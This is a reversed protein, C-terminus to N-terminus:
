NLPIKVGSFELYDVKSVDLIELFSYTVVMKSGITSKGSSSIKDFTTGDKLHVKIEQSYPEKEDSSPPNKDYLNIAHGKLVLNISIPSLTLEKLAVESGNFPVKKNIRYKVSGDKYDLEFPIKWNGSVVRIYTDDGTTSKPNYFSFDTFDLTVKKGILKERADLSLVMPIKNDNPDPDKLQDTYWGKCTTFPIIMDTREFTYYVTPDPKITDPFIVDYLIHVSHRDGIAEKVDITLGNVTVQKNIAVGLSNLTDIQGKNNPSFLGLANQSAIYQYAAFSVTFMALIIICAVLFPRIKRHTKYKKQIETKTLINNLIRTKEEESLPTQGTEIEEELCYTSMLDDIKNM